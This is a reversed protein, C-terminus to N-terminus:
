ALFIENPKRVAGLRSKSAGGAAKQAAANIM